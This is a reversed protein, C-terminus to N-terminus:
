GFAPGSIRQMELTGIVGLGVDVEAHGTEHELTEGM